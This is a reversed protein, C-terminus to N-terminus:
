ETILSWVSNVIDKRQRFATSPTHETVQRQPPYIATCIYCAPASCTFLLLLTFIFLRSDGWGSGNTHTWGTTPFRTMQFWNVVNERAEDPDLASGPCSSMVLLIQNRPGVHFGANAVRLAFSFHVSTKRLFYRLKM